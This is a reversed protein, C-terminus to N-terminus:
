AEIRAVKRGVKIFARITERSMNATHTDLLTALDKSLVEEESLKVEGTTEGEWILKIAGSQALRRGESNSSIFQLTDKLTALVSSGDPSVDTLSITTMNEVESLTRKSFQANFNEMASLAADSTHVATVIDFALLRKVDIPHLTGARMRQEMVDLEEDSVETLSRYYMTLLRDPISMIKGFINDADETLGIYNGKSKSMKDGSGDTGEILDTTMVTEPEKGRIEMVKRCMQMNLLQDIGGIEIDAQIAVSDYAMLISYLLEATSLSHGSELRTRFDDRQLQMSIPVKALIEMLEPLTVQELWSSNHHVEAKTLDFFPTMQEKYSALNSAIKEATLPPREKSRGSPDGIKATVDGVIVILQHGMRQLRNALMMPVAHGLHVDAGTPDIGYKVRLPKGTRVSKRLLEQLRKETIINVTRSALLRYQEDASLERLDLSRRDNLERAVKHFDDSQLTLNEDGFLNEYKKAHESHHM